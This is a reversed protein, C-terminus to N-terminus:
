YRVSSRPTRRDTTECRAAGGKVRDLCTPCWSIGPIVPNGCVKGIREHHQWLPFRCQSPTADIFPIANAGPAPPAQIRLPAPRWIAAFGHEAIEDGKKKAHHNRAIPKLPPREYDGELQLKKQPNEKKALGLRYRRGIVANRSVGLIVGMERCTLPPQQKHLELLQETKKPDSWTSNKNMQDWGM